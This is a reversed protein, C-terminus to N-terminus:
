MRSMAGLGAGPIWPGRDGLPSRPMNTPLTDDQFDEKRIPKTEQVTGFATHKISRQGNMGDDDVVGFRLGTTQLERPFPDGGLSVGEYSKVLDDLRKNRTTVLIKTFTTDTTFGNSRIAQLGLCVFIFAVFISIAYGIWLSEKHYKFLNEYRTKHCQVNENSAVELNPETILSVVIYEYFREFADPLNKVPWSTAKDVLVTQSIPSHTVVNQLENDQSLFGSLINTRTFEGLAHYAAFVKYDPSVPPLVSSNAPKPSLSQGDPLMAVGGSVSVNWDVRSQTLILELLCVHKFLVCRGSTFNTNVTYLAKEHICQVAHPVINDNWRTKADRHPPPKSTDNM